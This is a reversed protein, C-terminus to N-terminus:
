PLLSAPILVRKGNVREVDMAIGTPQQNATDLRGPVEATYVADVDIDLPSIIVLYGVMLPMVAPLPVNPNLLQWIRNCDDMTAYDPKLVIRDFAIPGQSEPERGIPQTDKVLLVIKKRLPVERYTYNHINIETAYNGPKVVPEGPQTQGAANQGPQLGCVFKVAYSWYYNSAVPFTIVQAAPAESARNPASAAHAPQAGAIVALAALMITTGGILFGLALTKRSM